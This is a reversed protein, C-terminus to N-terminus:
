EVESPRVEEKDIELMEEAISGIENDDYFYDDNIFQPDHISVPQVKVVKRRSSYRNVGKGKAM